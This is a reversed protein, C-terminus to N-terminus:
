WGGERVPEALLKALTMGRKEGIKPDWGDAELRKFLQDTGGTVTHTAQSEIVKRVYADIDSVAKCQLGTTGLCVVGTDYTNGIILPYVMSEATLTEDPTWFLRPWKCFNGVWAVVRPLNVHYSAGSESILYYDAPPIEKVAEWRPGNQSYAILGTQNFRSVMTMPRHEMDWRYVRKLMASLDDLMIMGARIGKEEHITAHVYGNRVQDDDLEIVVKM